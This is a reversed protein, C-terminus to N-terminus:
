NELELTMFAEQLTPATVRTEEDAMVPELELRASFVKGNVQQGNLTAVVTKGPQLQQSQAATGTLEGSSTTQMIQVDEGDRQVESLSVIVSGRKGYLLEGSASRLGRLALRFPQAYPCAVNLMLTRKGPTLMNREASAEMLQHRSQHGYDIFGEGASITCRSDAPPPALTLSETMPPAAAVFFSMGCTLAIFCVRKM